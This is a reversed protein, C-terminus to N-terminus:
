NNISDERGVKKEEETHERYRKRSQQIKQIGKLKITIRAKVPHHRTDINATPDAEADKVSNKWRETTLIYQM